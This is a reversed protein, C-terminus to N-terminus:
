QLHSRVTVHMRISVVQGDLYTPQYRWQSVAVLAAHMLLGPGSIARAEVVNGDQNIVADILVVGEIRSARALPPYVPAPGYLLQPPKVDGGVRYVENDHHAPPPPPPVAITNTGGIVGGLVGGLDGGPVGGIVGLTGPDPPTADHIIRIKAPIVVPQTIAQTPIPQAVAKVAKGVQAPPPAAPPAPAVLFTQEFRSLDITRTFILPAILIAAILMAHLLLSVALELPNRTEQHTPMELMGRIFAQQADSNSQAAAPPPAAGHWVAEDFAAMETLM